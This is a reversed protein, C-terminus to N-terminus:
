SQEGETPNSNVSRILHLLPATAAAWEEATATRWRGEAPLNAPDLQLWIGPALQRRWSQAWNDPAPPPPPPPPLPPAPRSEPAAPTRGWFPQGGVKAGTATGPAPQTFRRLEADPLGALLHQIEALSRGDAQLRKIAVLQMLHRPGYTAQRGRRSLPPDVLGSTIYWRIARENPLDRVRGSGAGLYDAALARGVETALETL